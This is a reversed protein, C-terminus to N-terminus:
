RESILATANRPSRTLAVPARHSTVAATSVPFDLKVGISFVLHLFFVHVRAARGSLLHRFIAPGTPIYM